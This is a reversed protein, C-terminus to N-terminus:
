GVGERSPVLGHPFREPVVAVTLGVNLEHLVNVTLDHLSLLIALRPADIELVGWRLESARGVSGHNLQGDLVVPDRHGSPHRKRGLARHSLPQRPAILASEASFISAPRRSMAARIEPVLVALM